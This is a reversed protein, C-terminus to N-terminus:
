IGGGASFGFGKRLLQAGLVVHGQHDLGAEFGHQEGEFALYAVPQGKDRLADVMMEAQNPPVM